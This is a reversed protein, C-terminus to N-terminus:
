RRDWGLEDLRKLETDLDDGVYFSLWGVLRQTAGPACDPFKPDSHLCPCPPNQWTRHNPEWATIIWRTETGEGSRAAAYPPKLVKNEKTQETFGKAGKLMVCNQVRLDRLTEASGNTLWMEMKVGDRQPRVRTGFTVRNPLEREMRLTGDEDRIWELPELTIGQKSWVTDIHTHALYLLGQQHWIAEPVDVVVYSHPDWPTFVSIKTERQPDVAGHLFGIRPHRGGPYPLVLLPDAQQRKPASDPRIDFRNLAAAIEDDALGLAARMEERAFRHHWVMNELWRRLEADDRPPRPQAILTSPLFGAVLAIQLIRRSM